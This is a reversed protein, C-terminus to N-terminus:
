GVRRDFSLGDDRQADFARRHISAVSRMLRYVAHARLQGPELDGRYQLAELIEADVQSFHRACMSWREFRRERTAEDSLIRFDEHRRDHRIRTFTADVAEEPGELAQLFWGEHSILLGTVDNMENNRQSSALIHSLPGEPARAVHPAQRSAYILRRLMRSM